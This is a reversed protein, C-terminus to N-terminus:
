ASREERNARPAAAALRAVQEPTSPDEPAPDAHRHVQKWVGDERRFIATVRLAYSQPPADGIAASTHEIGVVYGLDGSAGAALVEYVGSESGSFRATLWEFAHSVEDWGTKTFVAGFLTVPDDHSWLSMRPAPDGNHFATEVEDLTPLISALFDDVEAM